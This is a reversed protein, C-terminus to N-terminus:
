PVGRVKANVDRLKVTPRPPGTPDPLVARRRARQRLSVAIFISSHATVLSM